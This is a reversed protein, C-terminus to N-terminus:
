FANPETAGAAKVMLAGCSLRPPTRAAGACLHAISRLWKSCAYFRHEQEWYFCQHQRLSLWLNVQTLPCTKRRGMLCCTLAARLLTVAPSTLAKWPQAFCLGPLVGEGLARSSQWACGLCAPLCPAACGTRKGGFGPAEGNCVRCWPPTFVRCCPSQQSGEWRLSM